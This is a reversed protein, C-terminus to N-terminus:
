QFSACCAELQLDREAFSSREAISGREAFSGIFITKTLTILLWGGGECPPSSACFAKLQLDSEAFSGIM